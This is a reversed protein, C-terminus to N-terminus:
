KDALSEFYADVDKKLYLRRNNTTLKRVPKLVGKKELGNLKSMSFGGRRCIDKSTVFEEKILM